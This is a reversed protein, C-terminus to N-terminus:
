FHHSLMNVVISVLAMRELILLEKVQKKLHDELFYSDLKSISAGEERLIYVKIERIVENPNPEKKEIAQKIAFLKQCHRGL